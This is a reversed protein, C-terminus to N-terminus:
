KRNVRVVYKLTAYNMITCNTKTSLMDRMREAGYPNASHIIILQPWVQINDLAWAALHTGNLAHNCGERLKSLLMADLVIGDYGIEKQCKECMMQFGIDHDLSWIDFATKSLIEQATPVDRAVVWNVEPAERIDDFFFYKEM